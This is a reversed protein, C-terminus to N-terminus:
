RREDVFVAHALPFIPRGLRNSSINEFQLGILFDRSVFELFDRRVMMLCRGPTRATVAATATSSQLLSIEGFFDGSKLIAVERGAKEVGIEGEYVVHFFQNTDGYVVLKEGAHFDRFTARRAFAAIATSSWNSSLAIRKLFAVKQVATEVADRSLRSIVLADFERKSLSLLVSPATCRVTRTRLIGRLLAIEGFIDGQSLEAIRQHPGSAPGSLVEM